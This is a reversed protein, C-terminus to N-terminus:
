GVSLSKGVSKYFALLFDTNIGACLEAKYRLNTHNVYRCHKILNILGLVCWSGGERQSTIASTWVIIEEQNDNELSTLEFGM